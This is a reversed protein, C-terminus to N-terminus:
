DTKNIHNSKVSAELHKEFNKVCWGLAWGSDVNTYYETCKNPKNILLNVKDDQLYKNIINVVKSLFEEAVKWGTNGDKFYVNCFHGRQEQLYPKWTKGGDNTNMVSCYIEVHWLFNDNNETKDTENTIFWHDGKDVTRLIEGSQSVTIGEETSFFKIQYIKTGTTPANKWYFEEQCVTDFLYLSIIIIMAILNKM